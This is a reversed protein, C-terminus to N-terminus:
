NNYMLNLSSKAFNFLKHKTDTGNEELDNEEMDKEAIMEEDEVPKLYSRSGSEKDLLSALRVNTKAADNLKALEDLRLELMQKSSSLEEHVGRLQTLTEDFKSYLSTFTQIVERFQSYNESVYRTIKADSENLSIELQKRINEREAEDKNDNLHRIINMMFGSSDM